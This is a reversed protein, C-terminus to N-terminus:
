ANELTVDSSTIDVSDEGEQTHAYGAVSRCNGSKTWVSILLDVHVRDTEEATGQCVPRM